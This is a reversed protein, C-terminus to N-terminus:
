IREQRKVGRVLSRLQKYPIVKYMIALEEITYRESFLKKIRDKHRRALKIEEVM